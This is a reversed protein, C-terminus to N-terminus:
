TRDGELSVRAIRIYALTAMFVIAFLATSAASGYGIEQFDVLQQRAYVAMTMTDSGNSTLVYILDFIRMADLFRFIVAVAIAPRLLPLTIHWFRQWSGAGDISAAEHCDGPISQLAALLLLAMFPTTKWVDVLVVSWFSLSPSALWAVPQDIMGGTLLLHNIVGAQDNLMWAWIKASVITPMAWPILIAARLLGRLRLPANLLLAIGLGFLTELAVSVLAFRFTNAVSKWWDPDAFLGFSYAGDRAFYNDPGIFHPAQPNALSADTFGLYITRALPWGALLALVLLMPGIWIAAKALSRLHTPVLRM